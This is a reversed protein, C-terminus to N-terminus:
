GFVTLTEGTLQLPGKLGSPMNTPLLMRDACNPLLRRCFEVMGLLRQLQRKSAPPCFDRIVEVKSSLSHLGESDVHHGLFELSYVGLVCKSPNITVDFKDLLDFMFALQGKHEEANHSAVLMDDIYAYVFPLGRLVHDAFRQSPVQLPLAQFLRNFKAVEKINVSQLSSETRLFYLESTNRSFDAVSLAVAGISDDGGPPADTM